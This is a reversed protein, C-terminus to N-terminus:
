HPNRGGTQRIAVGSEDLTPLRALVALRLGPDNCLPSIGQPLMLSEPIFAEGTIGRVFIELEEWTLDTGPRRLIRGIDNSGTFWCSM